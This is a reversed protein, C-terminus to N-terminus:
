LSVKRIDFAIDYVYLNSERKSEFDGHYLPLGDQYKPPIYVGCINNDTVFVNEFEGGLADYVAMIVDDGNKAHKFDHWVVISDKNRYKFINLTDCVVGNYSHDGDIFFLDINDIDSFDYDRSNTYIMHINDKHTSVGSYDPIGMKKCWSSMSYKSGTPATIGYCEECVGSMVNISTGIYTGIELYRKRHYKLALMQLFAYDLVGSGGDIFPIEDLIIRKDPNMLFQGLCICHDKYLKSYINKREQIDDFNTGVMGIVNSFGLEELFHIVEEYEKVVCVIVRTSKECERLKDPSYVDYGCFKGKGQKDVDKDVFFLIRDGSLKKFNRYVKEAFNGAGYFIVAM